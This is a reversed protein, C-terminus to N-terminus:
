VKLGSEFEKQDVHGDGNTDCMAMLHSVEADTAEPVIRRVM